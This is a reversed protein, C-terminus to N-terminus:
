QPLLGFVVILSSGARRAQLCSPHYPIFEAFSISPQFVFEIALVLLSLQCAWAPPGPRSVSLLGRRHCGSWGGSAWCPGHEAGRLM